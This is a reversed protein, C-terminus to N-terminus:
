ALTIDILDTADSLSVPVGEGAFVELEDIRGDVVHLIVQVTAQNLGRGLAEVHLYDPRHNESLQAVGAEPVPPPESTLRVSPCGCRCLATVMATEVQRQLLPEDLAATLATLLRREDRSLGRPNELDEWVPDGMKM